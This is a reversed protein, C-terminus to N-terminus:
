VMTFYLTARLERELQYGAFRTLLALLDPASNILHDNIDFSNTLLKEFLQYTPISVVQDGGDEYKETFRGNQLNFYVNNLSSSQINVSFDLSRPALGLALLAQTYFQALVLVIAKEPELNDIQNLQELCYQYVTFLETNPQGDPLSRLVLEQMAMIIHMGQQSSIIKSYKVLPNVGIVKALGGAGGVLTVEVLIYPQLHGSLKSTMKKASRVVARVKGEEKSFFTLLLDAESLDQSKIIFGSIIQDSKSM